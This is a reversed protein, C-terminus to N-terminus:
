ARWSAILRKLRGYSEKPQFKEDLFGGYPIFAPDAFDWWTIAEVQPKSYCLTYFQEVWDAQVQPTWVPGHWVSQNKITGIAPKASPVGLETIHVPKGFAFYRELQREIELM